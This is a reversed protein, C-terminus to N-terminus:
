HMAQSASSTLLAVKFRKHARMEACFGRSFLVVYVYTEKTSKSPSISCHEYCLQHFSAWLIIWTIFVLSLQMGLLDLRCQCSAIVAEFCCKSFLCICRFPKYILHLFTASCQFDFIYRFLSLWDIAWTFLHGKKTKHCNCLWCVDEILFCFLGFSCYSWPGISGATEGVACVGSM